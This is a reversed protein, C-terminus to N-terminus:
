SKSVNAQVSFTEDDCTLTNAPVWLKSTDSAAMESQELGVTQDDGFDRASAACTPKAKANEVITFM